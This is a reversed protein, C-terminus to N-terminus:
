DPSGPEIWFNNYGEGLHLIIRRLQLLELIALFNFIVLIKEPKEAVLEQFSVRQEPSGYMKRILFDKQNEISYPYQVVHHVPKNKEQEYRDMVRTFVKMMKFLDLDQLEAEVNVEQSLKRIETLLNGRKERNLRNEELSALEQIVSKYKKYELLHRVLEERPDIENGEDDLVPRPLLMKSKIKMLTAAVLIFESAVEVNLQEMQHLYQLFDDTIKAIPIDYIDLEDREIFFLLLDFPGVFQPLNITYTTAGM